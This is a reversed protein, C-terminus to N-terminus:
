SPQTPVGYVYIESIATYDLGGPESTAVIEITLRSTTVDMRVFQPVPAPRFTQTKPEHGRVLYRVERLIRNQEFRNV